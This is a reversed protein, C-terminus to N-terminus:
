KKMEQIKAKIFRTSSPKLVQDYWIMYTKIEVVTEEEKDPFLKNKFEQKAEKVYKVFTEQDCVILQHRLINANKSNQSANAAAYESQSQMLEKLEKSQSLISQYAFEDDKLEGLNTEINEYNYAIGCYDLAKLITKTQTSFKDGWVTVKDKALQEDILAGRNQDKPGSCM